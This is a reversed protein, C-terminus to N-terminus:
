GDGEEFLLPRLSPRTAAAGPAAACFFQAFLAHVVPVPPILPPNL